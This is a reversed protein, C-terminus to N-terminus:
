GAVNHTLQTDEDFLRVSLKAVFNMHSCRKMVIQMLEADPILNSHSIEIKSAPESPEATSTPAQPPILTMVAKLPTSSV